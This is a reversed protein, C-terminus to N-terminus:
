EDHLLALWEKRHLSLSASPLSSVALPVCTNLADDDVPCFDRAFYCGITAKDNDKYLYSSNRVGVLSPSRVYFVLASLLMVDDGHSCSSRRGRIKSM